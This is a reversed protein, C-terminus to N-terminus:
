VYYGRESSISLRQQFHPPPQFVSVTLLYILVHIYYSTFKGLFLPSYKNGFIGCLFLFWYLVEKILQFWCVYARFSFRLSHSFVLWILFMVNRIYYSFSVHLLTLRTVYKGRRPKSVPVKWGLRLSAVSMWSWTIWADIASFFVTCVCHMVSCFLFSFFLVLLLM